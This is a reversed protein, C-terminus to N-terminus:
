MLNLVSLSKRPSASLPSRTARSATSSRIQDSWVVGAELQSTEVLAGSVQRSGRDIRREHLLAMEAQSWRPRRCCASQRVEVRAVLRGGLTAARGALDMTRRRGRVSLLVGVGFSGPTAVNQLPLVRDMKDM